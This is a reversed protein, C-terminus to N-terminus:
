KLILGALPPLNLTIRYKKNDKELCETRIPKNYVDGNGDYEKDNSNFIEKKYEKGYVEIVWDHRVVPTMNLVVLLDDKPLKGKRKYVM